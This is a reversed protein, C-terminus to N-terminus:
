VTTHVSYVTGGSACTSYQATHMYLTIDSGWCGRGKWSADASARMFGFFSLKFRKPEVDSDRQFLSM